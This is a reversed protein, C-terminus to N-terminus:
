EKVKEVRTALTEVEAVIEEDSLMVGLYEAEKIVVQAYLANLEIKLKESELIAKAEAEKQAKQAKQAKAKQMFADLEKKNKPEAIGKEIYRLATADDVTISQGVEFTGKIGSIHQKVILKMM